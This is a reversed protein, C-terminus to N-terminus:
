HHNLAYRQFLFIRMCRDFLLLPINREVWFLRMIGNVNDFFIFFFHLFGQAHLLILDYWYALHFYNAKSLITVYVLSASDPFGNRRIRSRSNLYPPGTKPKKEIDIEYVLGNQTKPRLLRHACWFHLNRLDQLRVWRNLSKSTVFKPM